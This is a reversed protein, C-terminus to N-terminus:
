LPAPSGEAGPGTPNGRSDSERIGRPRHRRAGGTEPDGGPVPPGDGRCLKLTALGSVPLVTRLSVRQRDTPLNCLPRLRTDDWLERDCPSCAQSSFDGVSPIRDSDLTANLVDQKGPLSRPPNKGRLVEGGAGHLSPAQGATESRWPLYSPCACYLTICRSVVRHLTVYRSAANRGARRHTSPASPQAQHSM